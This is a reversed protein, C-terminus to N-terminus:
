KHWWRKIRAVMSTVGAYALPALVVLPLLHHWEGILPGHGFMHPNM